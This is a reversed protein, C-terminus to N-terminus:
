SIEVIITMRLLTQNLQTRLSRTEAKRIQCFFWVMLLIKFISFSRIWEIEIRVVRHFFCIIMGCATENDWWDNDDFISVSHTLYTFLANRSKTNSTHYYWWCFNSFPHMWEIEIWVVQHFFRIIMGCATKNDWRDNDDLLADSRTLYTFSSNRSKTNSTQNYWRCFKSFPRMWEIEIPVVRHCFCIIMCCATKSDWQDDDDLLADSHTLYTVYEVRSRVMLLIKFIPVDMWNWDTGSASLLSNIHRKMIEDFITTWFSRRFSKHVFIVHKGKRIWRTATRVMLLFIFISADHWESFSVFWWVKENDWRNDADLLADSVDLYMRLSRTEAKQIQHTATCCCFNSLFFFLDFFLIPHTIM